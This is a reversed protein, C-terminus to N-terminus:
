APSTAAYVDRLDCLKHCRRNQTGRGPPQLASTRDRAAHREFVAVRVVGFQRQAGDSAGSKWNPTLSISTTASPLMPQAKRIAGSGPLVSFRVSHLKVSM